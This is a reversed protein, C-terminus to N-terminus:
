LDESFEERILLVSLAYKCGRAAPTLLARAGLAVLHVTNSNGARHPSKEGESLLAM